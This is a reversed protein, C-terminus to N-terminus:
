ILFKSLNKIEKLFSIMMNEDDLESEINSAKLSIVDGAGLIYFKNKPKKNLYDVTLQNNNSALVQFNQTVGFLIILKIFFVAFKKFKEQNKINSIKKDSM